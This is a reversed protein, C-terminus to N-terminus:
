KAYRNIFYGIIYFIDAIFSFISSVILLPDRTVITAILEIVLFITLIIAFPGVFKKLKTNSERFLALGSLGAILSIICSLIITVIDIPIDGKVTESNVIYDYGSYISYVSMFVFFSSSILLFYKGLKKVKENKWKVLISSTDEVVLPELIGKKFMSVKSIKHKIFLSIRTETSNDLFLISAAEWIFVWAVIDFIESLVSARLGDGLWNKDKVFVLACLILAGVLVLIASLFEKKQRNNKANYQGLELTDNLSKILLKPDYGEFDDIEFQVNLKYGLPANETINIITEIVDPSFQPKDKLGVNQNLLESAKEYRLPINILKNEEDLEYYEKYLEIQRDEIEIKQKKIKNM